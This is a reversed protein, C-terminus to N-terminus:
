LNGTELPLVDFRDMVHTCPCDVVTGTILSNVFNKEGM